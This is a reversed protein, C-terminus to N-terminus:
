LSTQTRLFSVQNCNNEILELGKEFQTVHLLYGCEKGFMHGM